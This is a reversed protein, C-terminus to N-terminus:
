LVQQLKAVTKRHPKLMNHLGEKFKNEKRQKIVEEANHPVEKGEEQHMHLKPMKPSGHIVARGDNIMFFHNASLQKFRQPRYIMNRMMNQKYMEERKKRREEERKKRREEHKADYREREEKEIILEERREELLQPFKREDIYRRLRQVTELADNAQWFDKTFCEERTEGRMELDKEHMKKFLGVDIIRPRGTKRDIMVNDRHLDVPIWGAMLIDKIIEKHEKIYNVDIFNDMKDVDEMQDKYQRVTMGDVKEMIIIKNDIVGYLRPIAPVCQLERLVFADLIEGNTNGTEGYGSYSSQGGSVYKLAYGKYGFVEGFYGQGLVEFDDPAKRTQEYQNMGNLIAQMDMLPLPTVIKVRNNPTPMIGVNAMELSENLKLNLM